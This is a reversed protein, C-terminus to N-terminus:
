PALTEGLHLWVRSTQWYQTHAALPLMADLDPENWVARPHPAAGGSPPPDYYGLPGSIVDAPSHVNVWPFPRHAYDQILPQVLAALAERTQSTQRGQATFVFATKDLPSGFTLLISTRAAADRLRGGPAVNDETVLANLADYAAVSGLSHGVVAVSEYAFDGTREDRAAYVARATRLVAEKIEKRLEHFRDLKHSSVYAAVDGVYQVLFERGVLTAALLLPWVLLAVLRPPAADPWAGVGALGLGLAVLFWGSLVLAAACLAGGVVLGAWRAGRWFRREVYRTLWLVGAFAVLSLSFAAALWTLDDLAGPSLRKVDFGGAEAVVAAAVLYMCALSALVVFALLLWLPALGIRYRRMDGFAWREFGRGTKRLGNLGGRVLFALVDRLTVRGETLPAWYAEYVHVETGEEPPADPRRVRLEVRELMREKGDDGAGRLGVRRVGLREVVRPRMRADPAGARLDRRPQAGELGRVVLDVNEFPVQQGMGHVVLVAKPRRAPAAAPAQPPAEEAGAAIGRRVTTVPPAQTTLREADLMKYPPPKRDKM